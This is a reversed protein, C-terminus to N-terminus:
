KRELVDIGKLTEMRGVWTKGVKSFRLFLYRRSPARVFGELKGFDYVDSVNQNSLLEISLGM